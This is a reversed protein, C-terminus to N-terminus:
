WSFPLDTMTGGGFIGEDEEWFRRRCQLLVKASADYHLQRIARQDLGELQVGAVVVPHGHAETLFQGGENGIGSQDRQGAVVVQQGRVFRCPLHEAVLQVGEERASREGTTQECIEM